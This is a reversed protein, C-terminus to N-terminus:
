FFNEGPSTMAFFEYNIEGPFVWYSFNRWSLENRFILCNNRWSIRIVFFKALSNWQSFYFYKKAQFHRQSFYFYINNRLSFFFECYIDIAFFLFVQRFIFNRAFFSFVLSGTGSGGLPVQAPIQNRVLYINIFMKRQFILYVNALNIHSQNWNNDFFILSM